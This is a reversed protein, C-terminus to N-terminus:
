TRARNLEESTAYMADVSIVEVSDGQSFNRREYSNEGDLEVAALEDNREDDREVIIIEAHEHAM